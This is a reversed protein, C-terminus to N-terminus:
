LIEDYQFDSQTLARIYEEEPDQELTIVDRFWVGGAQVGEFASRATKSWKDLSSVGTDKPLFLDVFVIGSKRFVRNGVGGLTEQTGALHKVVFRAFPKVEEPVFQFNDWAIEPRTEGIDLSEALWATHFVTHISDRAQITTTM